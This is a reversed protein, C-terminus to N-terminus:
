DKALRFELVWVPQEPDYRGHIKAWALEFAELSAYGEAQAETESIHGLLEYRIDLLRIRAIAKQNRGPQVAYTRGTRWRHRGGRLLVKEPAKGEPEMTWLKDTEKALRRTQTKQGSRVQQWTHQFIM